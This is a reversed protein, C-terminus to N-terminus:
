LEMNDVQCRLLRVRRAFSMAHEYLHAGYPLLGYDEVKVVCAM